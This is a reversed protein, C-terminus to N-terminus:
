KININNLMSKAISYEMDKNVGDELKDLKTLIDFTNIKNFFPIDTTWNTYEQTFTYSISATIPKNM